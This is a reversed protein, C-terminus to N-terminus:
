KKYVDGLFKFYVRGIINDVKDKLQEINMDVETSIAKLKVEDFDDIYGSEVACDALYQESLTLFPIRRRKWGKQIRWDVKKNFSINKIENLVTKVFDERNPISMYFYETPHQLPDYYSNLGFKPISIGGNGEATKSLIDFIEDKVCCYVELHDKRINSSILEMNDIGEGIDTALEKGIEFDASIRTEYWKSRKKGFFPVIRVARIADGYKGKLSLLSCGEHPIELEAFYTEELAKEIEAKEETRGM